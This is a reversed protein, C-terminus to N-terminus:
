LWKSTFFNFDKETKFDFAFPHNEIKRVLKANYKISAWMFFPQSLQSYDAWWENTLQDRLEYTILIRHM